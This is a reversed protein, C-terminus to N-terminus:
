QHLLDLETMELSARNKFLTELSNFCDYKAIIELGGLYFISIQNSRVVDEPDTILNPMNEFEFSNDKSKLRKALQKNTKQM